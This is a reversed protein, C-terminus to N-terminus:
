VYFKFRCWWVAPIPAFMLGLVIPDGGTLLSLAAGALAAHASAFAITNIEM